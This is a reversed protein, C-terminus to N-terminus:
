FEMTLTVEFSWDSDENELDFSLSYRSSGGNDSPDFSAYRDIIREDIIRGAIQDSGDVDALNIRGRGACGSIRSRADGTHFCLHDPEFSRHYAATMQKSAKDWFESLVAGTHV